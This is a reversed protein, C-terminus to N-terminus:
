YGSCLYVLHFKPISAYHFREPRDIQWLEGLFDLNKQLTLKGDKHSVIGLLILKPEDSERIVIRRSPTTWECLISVSEMDLSINNFVRPYKEILKEIENGNELNQAAFTGRTRTILEGKYKSIILLSGDIKKRADFEWEPNWPEFDPAEGVNCFKGFGRSVVHGDSKRVISSRYHKNVNNWAVGLDKPTILVCEDGAIVGEKYNFQDGLQPILSM